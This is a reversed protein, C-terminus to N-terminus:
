IGSWFFVGGLFFRVVVKYLGTETGLTVLSSLHGSVGNEPLEFLRTLDIVAKMLGLFVLTCELNKDVELM